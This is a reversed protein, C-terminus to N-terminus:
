VLSREGNKEFALRANVDGWSWKARSIPYDVEHLHPFLDKLLRTVDAVNELRLPTDGLDLRTLPHGAAQSPMGAPLKPIPSHVLLPLCLSRLRPCFRAYHILSELSANVRDWNGSSAETGLDISEVEPWWAAVLAHESDTPFLGDILDIRVHVLRRFVALPKIHVFSLPGIDAYDTDVAFDTLADHAVCVQVTQFFEQLEDPDDCDIEEAALRTLARFDWSRLVAAIDLCFVAHLSLSRLSPFGPTLSAPIVDPSTPIDQFGLYLSQLAPIQSFTALLSPNCRELELEVSKLHSWRTVATEALMAAHRESKYYALCSCNYGLDEVRDGIMNPSLLM